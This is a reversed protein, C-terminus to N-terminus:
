NWYLPYQRAPILNNGLVAVAVMIIAAGTSTLVYGYGLSHILPGGIVAILACGGGPPHITKTLKMFAISMSLSIAGSGWGPIGIFGCILRTSVGVFSSVLYGGIVNRPQALPSLYAEYVLVATAAYTGTLMTIGRDDSEFNRSLYWFDTVSVLFIGIFGLMSSVLIQLLPTMKPPVKGEVGCFKIFYSKLVTLVSLDKKIDKLKQDSSFGVSDHPSKAEELDEKKFVATNESVRIVRNGEAENVDPMELDKGGSDSFGAENTIM